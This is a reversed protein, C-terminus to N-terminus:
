MLYTINAKPATHVFHLNDCAISHAQLDAGEASLLNKATGIFKNVLKGKKYTMSITCWLASVLEINTHVM